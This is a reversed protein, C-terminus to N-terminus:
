YKPESLLLSPVRGWCRERLPDSDGGRLVSSSLILEGIQQLFSFFFLFSVPFASGTGHPAQGDTGPSWWDQLVPGCCTYVRRTVRDKSCMNLWQGM